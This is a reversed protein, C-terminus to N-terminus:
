GAAGDTTPDDKEAGSFGPLHIESTDVEIEGVDDPGGTGPLVQVDTTEDNVGTTADSSSPSEDQKAQIDRDNSDPYQSSATPANDTTM